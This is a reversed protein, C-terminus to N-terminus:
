AGGGPTALVPAPKEHALAPRPQGRETVFVVNPDADDTNVFTRFRAM